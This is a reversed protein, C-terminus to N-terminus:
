GVNIQNINETIPASIDADPVTQQPAVLTSTDRVLIYGPLLTRLLDPKSEVLAKIDNIIDAHSRAPEHNTQEVSSLAPRLKNYRIELAKLRVPNIEKRKESIGIDDLIQEIKTLAYIDREAQNRPRSHTSGKRGAM